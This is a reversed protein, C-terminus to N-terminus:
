QGDDPMLCMINLVWFLLIYIYYERYTCIYINKIYLRYVFIGYIPMRNICMKNQTKFMM